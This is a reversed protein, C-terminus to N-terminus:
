VVISVLKKPVVIVKKPPKGDLFRLVNEDNLALSEITKQDAEPSVCIKGRLKGNVQVVMEIQEQTLASADIDPWAVSALLTKHGLVTWLHDTIHPVIPSLMLTILEFAEQRVARGQVTYDDFKVLANLLEMNAAIATNFTFRRGM